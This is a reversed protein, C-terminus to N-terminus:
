LLLHACQVVNTQRVGERMWERDAVRRGAEETIWRRWVSRLGTLLLPMMLPKSEM